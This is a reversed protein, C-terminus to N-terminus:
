FTKSPKPNMYEEYYRKVLDKVAIVDGDEGPECKQCRRLKRGNSSEKLEDQVDPM